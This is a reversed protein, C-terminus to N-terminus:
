ALLSNVSCIYFPCGRVYGCHTGHLKSFFYQEVRVYEFNTNGM